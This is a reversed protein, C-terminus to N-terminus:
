SSLSVCNVSYASVGHGSNKDDDQGAEKQGIVTGLGRKPWRIGSEMDTKVMVQGENGVCYLCEEDKAM